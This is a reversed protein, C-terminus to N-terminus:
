WAHQGTLVVHVDRAGGVQQCGRDCGGFIPDGTEPVVTEPVLGNLPALNVRAMDLAGVRVHQITESEEGMLRSHLVKLTLSGQSREALVRGLHELAQVTPYDAPHTDAVRLERAAAQTTWGSVTGLAGWACLMGLLVARVIV